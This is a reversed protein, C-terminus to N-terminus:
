KRFHLITRFLRDSKIEKVLKHNYTEAFEKM